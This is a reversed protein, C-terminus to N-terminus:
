EKVPIVRYVDKDVFSAYLPNEVHHIILNDQNTSKIVVGLSDLLFLLEDASERWSDQAMKHVEDWPTGTETGNAHLYESIKEKVKKQQEEATM